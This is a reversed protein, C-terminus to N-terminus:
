YAKMIEMSLSENIPSKKILQRIRKSASLIQDPQDVDTTKLIDKIKPKLNNEEIFQFYAHSTVVFGNPVPIGLQYMEGLNGGKGGVQSVDELDIQNFWLVNATKNM